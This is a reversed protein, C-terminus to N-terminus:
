NEGTNIRGEIQSLIWRRKQHQGRRGKLLTIGQDARGSLMEKPGKILVTEGGNAQAGEHQRHKEAKLSRLM